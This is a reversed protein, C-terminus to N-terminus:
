IRTAFEKLVDRLKQHLESPRELMPYRGVGEITVANFDAYKKNVEDGLFVSEIGADFRVCPRQVQADEVGGPGDDVVSM